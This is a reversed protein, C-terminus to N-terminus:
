GNFKEGKWFGKDADKASNQFKELYETYKTNPKISVLEAYGEKLIEAEYMTAAYKDLYIYALKRGYEDTDEECFEYYVIKDSLMEKAYDSAIKGNDTNEKGTKETYEEPAVSEPTNIQAIRIRTVVGDIMVDITDGDVVDIVEGSGDINDQTPETTSTTVPTNLKNVTPTQTSGVHPKLGVFLMLLLALSLIGIWKFITKDNKNELREELKEPLKVKIDM